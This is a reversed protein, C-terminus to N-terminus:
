EVSEILGCTTLFRDVEKALAAADSDRAQVKILIIIDFPLICSRRQRYIERILRKFRNRIVANGLKKPVAFGVRRRPSPRYYFHLAYGKFHCGKRFLM